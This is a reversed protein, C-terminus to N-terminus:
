CQVTQLGDLYDEPSVLKREPASRKNNFVFLACGDVNMRTTGEEKWLIVTADLKLLRAFGCYAENSHSSLTMKQGVHTNGYGWVEEVVGEVEKEAEPDRKAPLDKTITEIRVKVANWTPQDCLKRRYDPFFCSCSSGLQVLCLLLVVSRM